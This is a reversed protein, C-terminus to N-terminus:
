SRARGIRKVSKRSEHRTARRGGGAEPIVHRPVAGDCRLLGAIGDHTGGATVTGAGNTRDNLEVLTLSAGWLAPVLANEGSNPGFELVPRSRLLALPIGLHRGYLNRRKALHARWVASDEVRILVPNFQHEQYYGTLTNALGSM